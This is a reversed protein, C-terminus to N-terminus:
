GNQDSADKSDIAAEARALLKDATVSLAKAEQYLRLSEGLPTQGAELRKVIEELRAMVEEYQDLSPEDNM